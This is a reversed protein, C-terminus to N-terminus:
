RGSSDAASTVRSRCWIGIARQLGAALAVRSADAEDVFGAAVLVEHLAAEPVEVPLVVIGSRERERHRRQRAAELSAPMDQAGELRCAVFLTSM